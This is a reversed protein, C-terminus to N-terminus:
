PFKVGRFDNPNLGPVAAGYYSNITKVMENAIVAYGRPTPHVGDLSFLNGSVYGATNSVGNTVIGNRAIGDFFVQADFLALGKRAATAKIINNLETTRATVDDIERTDLVFQSPLPNPAAAVALRAAQGADLNAIAIGFGLPTSTPTARSGIAGNATLLLRDNGTIERVAGAGTRIFLGFRITAAQAATLTLAATLAAKNADPVPNAGVGAAAALPPVTTFFPVSTVTPITALMGKAGGTTLVDTMANYKTDFEAALTLPSRPDAGGSTAYGLVDNNGLWNTFFTPNVAAVQQQVYQQYSAQSGAPLLREFFNNFAHPMTMNNTGYEPTTVDAVRIGPVGLNQNGAGAFKALLNIGPVASGPVFALSSTEPVLVPSGAATFNAIRLYGSGNAQSSAFLPQVFEGGGVAKFQTALMNPYSNTQGELSLGSSEYGATLSNGVAVYRSFDASGASSKPSSELDPKCGALLALLSLAAVPAASNFKLNM